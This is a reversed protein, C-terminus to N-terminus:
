GSSRPASGPDLWTREGELVVPWIVAGVPRVTALLVLSYIPLSCGAMPLCKLIEGSLAPHPDSLGASSRFACARHSHRLGIQM